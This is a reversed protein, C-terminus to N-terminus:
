LEKGPKRSMYKDVFFKAYKVSEEITKGYTGVVGSQNLTLYPLDYMYPDFYTELEIGRYVCNGVVRMNRDTGNTV